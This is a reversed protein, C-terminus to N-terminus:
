FLTSQPRTRCAQLTNWSRWSPRRKNTQARTCRLPPCFPRSCQSPHRVRRFGLVSVGEEESPAAKAKKNVGTAPAAVALPRKGAQSAGAAKGKSTGAATAGPNSPARATSASPATSEKVPPSATANAPKSAKAKSGADTASAKPVSTVAPASSQHHPTGSGNRARWEAGLLQMVEASSAQPHASAIRRRNAKIYAIWANEKQQVRAGGRRVRGQAKRRYMTAKIKGANKTKMRGDLSDPKRMGLSHAVHKQVAIPMSALQEKTLKFFEEDSMDDLETILTQEHLGRLRSAITDSARDSPCEVLECIRRFYEGNKERAFDLNRKNCWQSFVDYTGDDEVDFGMTKSGVMDPTLIDPPGAVKKLLSSQTTTFTYSTGGVTTLTLKICRPMPDASIEKEHPMYYAMAAIVFDGPDLQSVKAGPLCAMDYDDIFVRVAGNPYELHVLLSGQEGSPGKAVAAPRAVASPGAASRRADNASSAAHQPVQDSAKMEAEAKKKAKGAAMRQVFLARKAAAEQAEAAMDDVTEDDDCSTDDQPATSKSGSAPPNQAEMKKKERAQQMKTAFEDSKEAYAKRESPPLAHWEDLKLTHLEFPSASPYEAKIKEHVDKAFFKFGKLAPTNSM